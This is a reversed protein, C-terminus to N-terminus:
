LVFICSRAVIPVGLFSVSSLIAKQNANQDHYVGQFAEDGGKAPSDKM